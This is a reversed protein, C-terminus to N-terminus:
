GGPRGSRAAPRASRASRPPWNPGACRRRPRTVWSLPVPRTGSPQGDPGTLAPLPLEAPGRRRLWLAAQRRAIGWLGAARGLGPRAPLRAAGRWVALFTEQLVDEVEAAPLVTRLRAALWPAHRSFLERLATDDGGAVAAILADDDMAERKRGAPELNVPRGSKRWRHRSPGRYTLHAAGPRAAGERSRRPRRDGGAPVHPGPREAALVADTRALLEPSAASYPFLVQGFVLRMPHASRPGADRAAETFFRDAYGALLEAHEAQNFGLGVEVAGEVGLEASETLLRWAAAKHEADPISARCAAAHRRGADTDDRDLEADIEADGARGTSALRRLLAWRLETDVM